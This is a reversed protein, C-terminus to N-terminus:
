QEELSRRLALKARHLHTRVSNIPISLAIAIEQYTLEAEYRLAIVARQEPRLGAVAEGLRQIAEGRDMQLEPAGTEESSPFEEPGLDSFDVPRRRRWRDRAANTAIGALWPFFPLSVRYSSLGRWARLWAEQVIEEAEQSDTMLRRAVRYLSATHQEVLQDFAAADGSRSRLVLQRDDLEALKM